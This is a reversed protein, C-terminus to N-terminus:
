TDGGFGQICREEGEHVSCAGDMENKKVEDNLYCPSCHMDNVEENLLRIWVGTVDDTEPGFIMRLLRNVFVRLRSEEM